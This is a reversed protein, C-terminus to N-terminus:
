EARDTFNKKLFKEFMDFGYFVVDNNFSKAAKIM